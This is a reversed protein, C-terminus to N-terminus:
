SQAEAAVKGLDRIHQAIRQPSVGCAVEFVVLRAAQELVEARALQLPEPMPAPPPSLTMSELWPM